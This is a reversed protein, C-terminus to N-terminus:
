LFFSGASLSEVGFLGIALDALGDGNVDGEIIGNGQGDPSLRLQGAQGTFEAGGIFTFAQNGGTTTNADIKGLRIRDGEAANFDVIIDINEPDNPAEAVSKWVFVDPGGRGTLQDFGGGGTLVNRADNGFIADDSGSGVVNEIGRVTEFRNAGTQTQGAALDVLVGTGGQTDDDDRGEYSLTDIGAGGVIVNQWGVSFFRDNGGGGRYVSKFTSFALVDNGAGGLVTDARDTAFSGFGTGLYADNGAGLRIVSGNEARNEVVDRGAGAVVLNGGGFDDNLDLLIRDNGALALLTIQRNEVAGGQRFTDNGSTLRITRGM